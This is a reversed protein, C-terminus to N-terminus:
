RRRVVGPFRQTSGRLVDIRADVSARRGPSSPIGTLAADQTERPSEGGVALAVAGGRGREGALVAVQDQLTGPSSTSRAWAFM